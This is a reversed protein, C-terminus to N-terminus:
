GDSPSRFAVTRSAKVSSSIADIDQDAVGWLRLKRRASDAMSQSEKRVADPAKADLEKLAKTAGILEDEAVQLDPSYLDFLPDGKSIHMGETDAYLKEIWGNVKLNIEYIAPEPVEVTGV